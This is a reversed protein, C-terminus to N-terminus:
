KPYTGYGAPCPRESTAKPYIATKTEIDMGPFSASGGMYVPPDYLRLRAKEAALSYVAVFESLSEGTALKPPNNKNRDEHSLSEVFLSITNTKQDPQGLNRQTIMHNAGHVYHLAIFDDTGTHACMWEVGFGLFILGLEQTMFPGQLPADLKSVGGRPLRIAGLISINGKLASDQDAAPTDDDIAVPLWGAMDLPTLRPPRARPSTLDLGAGMLDKTALGPGNVTVYHHKPNDPQLMDDPFLVDFYAGRDVWLSLGVVRIRLTWPMNSSALPGKRVVKAAAKQPAGAGRSKPKGQKSAKKPKM